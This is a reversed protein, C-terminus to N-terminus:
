CPISHMPHAFHCGRLLLERVVQLLQQELHYLAGPGIRTHDPEESLQGEFLFSPPAVGHGPAPPDNETDNAAIFARVDSAYTDLTHQHSQQTALQRCAQVLDLSRKWYVPSTYRTKLLVMLRKIAEMLENQEELLPQVSDGARECAAQAAAKTAVYDLLNQIGDDFTSRKNLLNVASKVAM